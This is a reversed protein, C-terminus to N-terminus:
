KAVQIRHTLRFRGNQHDAVIDVDWQGALPLTMRAAYRGNGMDRLPVDFDGGEHTPRILRATVAAGVVGKAAADTLQFTLLSGDGAEPKVSLRGSWGLARQKEVADLTRNHDLGKIYHQESKVGTWSTLAFYVMAGNALLVVAFFGFFWWPLFRDSPRAHSHDTM